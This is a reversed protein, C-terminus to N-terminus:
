LVPHGMGIFADLHKIFHGPIPTDVLGSTPSATVHFKSGPKKRITHSCFKILCGNFRFVRRWYRAPRKAFSPDIHESFHPPCGWRGTVASRVGGVPPTAVVGDCSVVENLLEDIYPNGATLVDVVPPQVEDNDISTIKYAFKVSDFYTNGTCPIETEYFVYEGDADQKSEECIFPLNAVINM